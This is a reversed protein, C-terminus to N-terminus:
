FLRTREFDVLSVLHINTASERELIGKAKSSVCVLATGAPSFLDTGDWSGEEFYLGKWVTAGKPNGPVVRAIAISRSNDIPGSRGTVVLLRFNSLQEGDGNTLVIPVAEWGTVGAACFADFVRTSLLTIAARTTGVFDCWQTGECQAFKLPEAPRWEGTALARAQDRVVDHPQRVRVAGRKFAEQLLFINHHCM